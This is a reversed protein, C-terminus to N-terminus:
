VHARGIEANRSRVERRPAGPNAVNEFIPAAGDLGSSLRGNFTLKHRSGVNHDLKLVTGNPTNTEAANVFFNNRLFPGVSANPLPYYGITQMSVPDMRDLPIRNGPFADRLYQLNSTSVPLSANFEPNPRTTLPDYIVIPEGANDVLDSFDGTRQQATPINALYSRAMKERTGEYTLSFFTNDRSSYLWPIRVPGTLNFGFQNRRLLSKSGNAQRVQHPLADLADNRLYEYLNGRYDRTKPRSGNVHGASTATSSVKEAQVRFEQLAKELEQQAPSSDGGAQPSGESTGKQVKEDSKVSGGQFSTSRGLPFALSPSFVALMLIWCFFWRPLSLQFRASCPPLSSFCMMM